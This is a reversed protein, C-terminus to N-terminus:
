DLGGLMKQMMVLDLWRDFKFGVERFRGAEVFGLSRHLGLSAANDADIGAMMTHKGLARAHDLLGAILARGVGRGRMEKAVHVSHEVTHRYCSWPRFEGFSAFGAMGPAGEAVLIPFGLAQRGAFWDQRDKLTAPQDSYVATTTAIVDNYIDLIVPLDSAVAQRVVLEPKM